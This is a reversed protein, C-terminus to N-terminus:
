NAATVEYTTSADKFQVGEGPKSVSIELYLVQHGEPADFAIDVQRHAGLDVEVTAQGSDVPAGTPSGAHLTWNVELQTGSFADNFVTLTRTTPGPPIAVPAIPWTGQTNSLKNADWFESDIVAIPHFGRQLLQIAPNSWPDPLNDEGYLPNPGHPYALELTMDTRKVGPVVGAWASLLTYPRADAAGQERM